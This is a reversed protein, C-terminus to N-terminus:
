LTATQSTPQGPWAFIKDATWVFELLLENRINETKLEQICEKLCAPLAPSPGPAARSGRAAVRNGCAFMAQNAPTVATRQTM